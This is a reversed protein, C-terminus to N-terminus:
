YDKWHEKNYKLIADFKKVTKSEDSKVEDSMHEETKSNNVNMQDKFFSTNIKQLIM